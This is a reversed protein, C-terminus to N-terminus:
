LRESAACTGWVRIWSAVVQQISDQFATSAGGAAIGLGGRITELGERVQNAEM